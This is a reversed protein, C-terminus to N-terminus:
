AREVYEGTDTNIRILDGENIFMPVNMTAGTEIEVQKTVNGASNGKVGPPSSIVKFVMKIPLNLAVPKENFYLLDVDTGEKLFGIKESILDLDISFQEFTTNDMFHAENEDKYLYNAKKKEPEGEEAKEGSRFDMELINGTILNKLKTKLVASARATKNHETKIVVYPENNIKLVKGTKIEGLSLM